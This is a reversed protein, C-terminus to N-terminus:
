RVVVASLRRDALTFGLEREMPNTWPVRSPQLRAATLRFAPAEGDDRHAEPALWLAGDAACWARLEEHWTISQRGWLGVCAFVNEPHDLLGGVGISLSDIRGIRMAPELARPPTLQGLPGVLLEINSVWFHTKAIAPTMHLIRELKWGVHDAVAKAAAVDQSSGDAHQNHSLM